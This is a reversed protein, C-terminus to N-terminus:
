IIFMLYPLTTGTSLYNLVVDHLRTPLQHISEIKKVEASTPPSHDAECEPRKAGPPLAGTLWKIASQDPRCPSTVIRVGNPSL